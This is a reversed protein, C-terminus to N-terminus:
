LSISTKFIIQYTPCKGLTQLAYQCWYYMGGPFKKVRRIEYWFETTHIYPLNSLCLWYVVHHLWLFALEARYWLINHFQLVSEKKKNGCKNRSKQYQHKLGLAKVALRVRWNNKWDHPLSLKLCWVHFSNCSLLM